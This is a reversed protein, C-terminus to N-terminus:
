KKTCFWNCHDQNRYDREIVSYDFYDEIIERVENPNGGGQKIYSPYWEFVMKLGPNAKFTKILGKLAQHESGDIDMKIFNIKNLLGEEELVEDIPRGQSKYKKDIIPMGIKENKDWAAIKFLKVRGSYRNAKINKKLYPLQNETPEFAM